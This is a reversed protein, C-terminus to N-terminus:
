VMVEVETDVRVEGVILLSPKIGCVGVASRFMRHMLWHPNLVVFVCGCCERVYSLGVLSPKIGCVGVASRFMRCM